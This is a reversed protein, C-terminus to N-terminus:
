GKWTRRVHGKEADILVFLSPAGPSTYVVTWTTEDPDGVQFPGRSLMVTSAHGSNRRCYDRGGHEEAARLAEASDIWRIALPPAEFKMDLDQALVIRGDRVSWGRAKHRSPSYYLYAWRVSRGDGDVDEDNEVYVLSADEAWVSAAAEASALGAHAAYPLHKGAWAPGPALISLACAIAVGAAAALGLM